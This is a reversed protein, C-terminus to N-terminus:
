LLSVSCVNTPVANSYPRSKIGSSDRSPVDSFKEPNHKTNLFSLKHGRKFLFLNLTVM